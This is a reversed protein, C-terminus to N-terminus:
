FPRCSQLTKPVHNRAPESQLKPVDASLLDPAGEIVLKTKQAVRRKTRLFQALVEMHSHAPSNAYGLRSLPFKLAHNQM